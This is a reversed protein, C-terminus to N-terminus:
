RARALTARSCWAFAPPATASPATLPHTSPGSGSIALQVVPGRLAAINHPYPNTAFSLAHPRRTLLPREGFGLAGVAKAQHDRAVSALARDLDVLVDIEMGRGKERAGRQLMGQTRPAM